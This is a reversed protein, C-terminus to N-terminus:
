FGSNPKQKKSFIAIAKKLIDREERAIELERRLQRNEEELPTQHGSGPFADNGHSRLQKRWDKIAGGFLGLDREVQANSKDPDDALRLAELKFDSDYRRRRESAM